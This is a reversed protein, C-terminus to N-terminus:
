SLETRRFSGRRYQPHLRRLVGGAGFPSTRVTSITACSM